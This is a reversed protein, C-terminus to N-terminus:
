SVVVVIVRNSQYMFKEMTYLIHPKKKFLGSKSATSTQETVYHDTVVSYNTDQRWLYAVFCHTPTSSIISIGM